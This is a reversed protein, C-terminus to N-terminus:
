SQCNQKWGPPRGFLLYTLICFVSNAKIVMISDSVTSWVVIVKMSKMAQSGQKQQQRKERSPGKWAQIHSFVHGKIITTHCKTFGVAVRDKFVTLFLCVPLTSPVTMLVVVRSVYQLGLVYDQKPAPNMMGLAIPSSIYIIQHEYLRVHTRCRLQCRILVKNVVCHATINLTVNKAVTYM